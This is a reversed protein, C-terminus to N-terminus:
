GKEAFVNLEVDVNNSLVASSGGVDFDRRDISFNGNFLLGNDQTQATFPFSVSKTIGKITLDGTVAYSDGDKTINKSVFSITSFKEVNFYEEKKLHNDRSDNGTNITNADVSVNFSASSIDSSSFKISGKLGNLSGSTNIGFNKITFKVESKGDVPKYHQATAVFLGMILFIFSLAAKM